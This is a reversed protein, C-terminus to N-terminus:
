TSQTTAEAFYASVESSQGKKLTAHKDMFIDLLVALTHRCIAADTTTYTFQLLDSTGKRYVKLNKAYQDIGFYGKESFILKQVENPTAADRQRIIRALTGELTSDRLAKVEPKFVATHLENYEAESILRVDPQPMQLYTALLRTALEERTKHANALSVLNELENQAYDRDASKGGDANKISVSSIIGTSLLAESTFEQKQQSVFWWAATAALLGGALLLLLNRYILQLFTTLNM